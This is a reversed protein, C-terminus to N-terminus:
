RTVPEIQQAFSVSESIEKLCRAIVERERPVLEKDKLGEEFRDRLFQEGEEVHNIVANDNQGLAALVSGWIKHFTGLASGSAVREHGQEALADNLRLLTTEREEVRRALASAIAPSEARERAKRYGEISDHTYHALTELRSSMM